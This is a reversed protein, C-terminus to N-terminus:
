FIKKFFHIFFIFGTSLFLLNHVKSHPIFYNSLYSYLTSFLIGTLGLYGLNFKKQYFPFFLGVLVGFGIFSLCIFILIFLYFILDFNM